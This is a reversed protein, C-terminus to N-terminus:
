NGDIVLFRSHTKTSPYASFQKYLMFVNHV